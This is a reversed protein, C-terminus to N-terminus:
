GLTDSVSFLVSYYVFDWIVDNDPEEKSIDGPTDKDCSLFLTSIVAFYFLFAKLRM